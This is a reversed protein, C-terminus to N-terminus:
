GSQCRHGAETQTGKWEGAKAHRTACVRGAGTQAVVLLVPDDRLEM